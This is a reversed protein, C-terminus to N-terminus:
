FDNIEENGATNISAYKKTVATQTISFKTELKVIKKPSFRLFIRNDGVFLTSNAFLLQFKFAKLTSRM